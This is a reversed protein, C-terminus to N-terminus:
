FVVAEFPTLHTIVKAHLVFPTGRNLANINKTKKLKEAGMETEM